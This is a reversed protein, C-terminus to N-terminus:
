EHPIPPSVSDGPKRDKANEYVRVAPMFYRWDHPPTGKSWWTFGFLSPRPREEHVVRYGQREMEELLDLLKSKFGPEARRVREPDEWEFDSIVVYRPKFLNLRSEPLAGEEPPLSRPALVHYPGIDTLHPRSFDTTSTEWAPVVGFQIMSKVNGASPVIPPTYNWSDSALAVIDAQTTNQRLWAATRDRSDPAAMVRDHALSSALAALLAVACM